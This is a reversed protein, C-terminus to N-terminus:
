RPTASGVFSLRRQRELYVEDHLARQERQLQQEEAVLEAEREALQGELLTLRKGDELARGLGLLGLQLLLALPLLVPAWRVLRAIGGRVHGATGRGRRLLRSAVRSPRRPRDPPLDFRLTGQTPTV